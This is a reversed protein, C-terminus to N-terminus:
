NRSRDRWGEGPQREGLGDGVDRRLDCWRDNEDTLASAVAGTDDPAGVADDDGITVDDAVIADVDDEVVAALEGTDDGGAVGVAVQRDDLDGGITQGGGAEAIGAGHPRTLDRNRDTVRRSSRLAAVAPMTTAAPWAAVSSPGRVPSQSWVSTVRRGPLEPPGSTSARPPTMPMLVITLPRSANDIGLEATSRNTAPSRGPSGRAQSPM